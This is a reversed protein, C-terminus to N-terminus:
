WRWEQFPGEYKLNSGLVHRYVYLEENRSRWFCQHITTIHYVYWSVMSIEYKYAVSWFPRLPNINSQRAWLSANISLRYIPM